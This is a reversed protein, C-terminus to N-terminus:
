SAVAQDAARQVHEAILRIEAALGVLAAKETGAYFSRGAWSASWTGDHESRHTIVLETALRYESM